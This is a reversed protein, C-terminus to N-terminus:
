EAAHGPATRRERHQLAIARLLEQAFLSQRIQQDIAIPFCRTRQSSEFRLGAGVRVGNATCDSSLCPPFIFAINRSKEVVSNSNTLRQTLAASVGSTMSSNMTGATSGPM